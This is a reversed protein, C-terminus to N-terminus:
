CMKEFKKKLIKSTQSHFKKIINVYNPVIGRSICEKNFKINCILKTLKIMANKFASVTKLAQTPMLLM